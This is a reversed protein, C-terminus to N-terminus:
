EAAEQRRQWVSMGKVKRQVIQGAAELRRLREHAAHVTTGLKLAVDGSTVDGIVAAFTEEMMGISKAQWTARMKDYRSTTSVTEAVTPKPQAGSANRMRRNERDALRSPIALGSETFCHPFRARIAAITEEPTRGKDASKPTCISVTTIDHPETTM